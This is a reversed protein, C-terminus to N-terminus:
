LLPDQAEEFLLVDFGEVVSYLFVGFIKASDENVKAWLSWGRALPETVYVIASPYWVIALHNPRRCAIRGAVLQRQSSFCVRTAHDPHSTRDVCEDSPCLGM